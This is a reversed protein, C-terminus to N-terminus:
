VLGTSIFAALAAPSEDNELIRDLWGACTILADAWDDNTEEEAFQWFYESLIEVKKRLEEQM